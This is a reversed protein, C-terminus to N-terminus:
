NKNYIIAHMRHVRCRGHWQWRASQTPRASMTQYTNLWQDRADWSTATDSSSQKSLYSCKWIRQLSSMVSSALGVRRLMDPRCYGSSSQKSGLYIFEEVGEVPAGDLSLTTPPNGAGVNQLKTKAWSIRLGLSAAITNFSQLTSNVSMCCVQFFYFVFSVIVYVRNKGLIVHAVRNYGVYACTAHMIPRYEASLNANLHLTKRLKVAVDVKCLLKDTFLRDETKGRLDNGRWWRSIRGIPRYLIRCLFLGRLFSVYRTFPM